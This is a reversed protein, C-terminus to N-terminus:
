VSALKCLESLSESSIIPFVQVRDDGSLNEATVTDCIIMSVGAMSRFWGEDRTSCAVISDPPIEAAMLFLRALNIFDDWGSALGILDTEAPRAKGTLSEAPSNAKLYLCSAGAPLLTDLKETEDFLAALQVGEFNESSLEEPSIGRVDLPVASSIESVIVERLAGVAEVILIEKIRKQNSVQTIHELIAARDYGLQELGSLFDAVLRSLDGSGDDPRKVASVYIGSGQRFEVLGQVVLDRYAGSVTNQHISFRRALERTSPLKDGAKLDGSAIALTVQAILQAKAPVESNKSLWLKM